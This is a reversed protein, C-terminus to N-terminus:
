AVAGIGASGASNPAPVPQGSFNSQAAAQASQSKAIAAQGTAAGTLTLTGAEVFPITFYVIGIEKTSETVQAQGNVQVSLRGWIPHVLTGPGPQELAAILADRQSGWDAAGPASEMVFVTLNFQRAKRGLDEPYPAKDPLGPTPYEHLAVRRGPQYQSGDFRFPVGRFSGPIFPSVTM